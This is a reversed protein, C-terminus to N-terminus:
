VCNRDYKGCCIVVQACQLLIVLIIDCLPKLGNKEEVNKVKQVTQWKSTSGRFSLCILVICLLVNVKQFNLLVSLSSFGALINPLMKM